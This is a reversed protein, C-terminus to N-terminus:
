PSLWFFFFFSVTKIIIFLKNQIKAEKFNFAILHKKAEKCFFFATLQAIM